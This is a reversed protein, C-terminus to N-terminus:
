PKSPVFCVVNLSCIFNWKLLMEVVVFVVFWHLVHRAAKCIQSALREEGVLTQFKIKLNEVTFNYETNSPDTLEPEWDLNSLISATISQDIKNAKSPEPQSAPKSTKSRAQSQNEPLSQGQKSAPRSAPRHENPGPKRPQSQADRARHNKHRSKSTTSRDPCRLPANTIPCTRRPGFLSARLHLPSNDPTLTRVLSEQGPQIQRSRLGWRHPWGKCDRLTVSLWVVVMSCGCFLWLVVAFCGCFM